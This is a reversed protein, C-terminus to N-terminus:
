TRQIVKTCGASPVYLLVFQTCSVCASGPRVRAGQLGLVPERALPVGLFLCVTPKQVQVPRAQQWAGVTPRGLRGHWDAAFLMAYRGTRSSFPSITLLQVADSALCVLGTNEVNCVLM